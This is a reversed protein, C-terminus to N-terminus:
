LGLKGISCVSLCDNSLVPLCLAILMNLLVNEAHNYGHEIAPGLGLCLSPATKKGRTKLSYLIVVM